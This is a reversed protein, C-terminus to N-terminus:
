GSSGRSSSSQQEAPWHRACLRRGGAGAGTRPVAARLHRGPAPAAAGGRGGGAAARGRGRSTAGRDAAVVGRRHQRQPPRRREPAAAQHRAARAEHARVQDLLEVGDGAGHAAAGLHVVEVDGLRPEVHRRQPAGGEVAAREHIRGRELGEEARQARVGDEVAGRDHVAARARHRHQIFDVHAARRQHQLEAPPMARLPQHVGGADLHSVVIVAAIVHVLAARVRLVGRLAVLPRLDRRLLQHQVRVAWPLERRAGQSRPVDPTRAVVEEEQALHRRAEPRAAPRREAARLCRRHRHNVDLVHRGRMHQRRLPQAFLLPLPPLRHASLREVDSVPRLVDDAEVRLRRSRRPWHHRQRVPQEEHQNAAGDGEGTRGARGM